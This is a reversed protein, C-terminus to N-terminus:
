LRCNINFDVDRTANATAILTRNTRLLSTLSPGHVLIDCPAGKIAYVRPCLTTQVDDQYDPTMGPVHEMFSSRRACDLPVHPPPDICQPMFIAAEASGPCQPLSAAHVPNHRIIVM